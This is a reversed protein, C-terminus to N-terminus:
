LVTCYLVTCCLVTFCLVTCNGGPLISLNPSNCINSTHLLLLLIVFNFLLVNNTCFGNDVTCYYGGGQVSPCYHPYSLHCLPQPHGGWCFFYLILLLIKKNLFHIYTHFVLSPAQLGRRLSKM